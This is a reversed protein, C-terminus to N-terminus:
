DVLKLIISNMVYFANDSVRLYGKKISIFHHSTLFDIEKKKDSMLHCNFSKDFDALNLGEATRLALMLTEEKRQSLTLKEQSVIPLIGEQSVMKIYTDIDSTNAIRTNNVFSHGALGFALYEGMKWYNLNHKSEYDPYAFNSVEYHDYGVGTLVEHYDYVTNYMEVSEDESPLKIKGANVMKYLPTGQELILSYPSIHPIKNKVLFKLMAVIDKIKQTPLALMMDININEFGIKRAIKLAKKTDAVTHHRDLLDIIKQNMTQGGISLRNVGVLKYELLKKETVSGPNVEVSIECNQLIKFKNKLEAIIKAVLGDKLVSPSGGGIYISTVESTKGYSKSQMDIESLVANVYSDM